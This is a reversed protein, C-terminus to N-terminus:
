TGKESFTMDNFFFINIRTQKPAHLQYLKLLFVHVYLLMAPEVTELLSVRLFLYVKYIKQLIQLSLGM